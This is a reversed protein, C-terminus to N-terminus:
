AAASIIKPDDYPINFVDACNKWMIRQIESETAGARELIERGLEYDVPWASSSHPFDPGWMIKDVGINYRDIVGLEDEIYVLWVNRDFYESPLLPLNWEERNRKVSEDFRELYYPMWGCQVESGVFKLDPFREFVGSSMMRWLIVQFTGAEMDVGKQKARAKSETVGAASIKSGLDGAPFFFQTHINVPIDMEVAMAWFADDEPTPDSFNGSPYAELQVTRLGMDYVRRLEELCDELGTTPLTANCRFHQPAAEQFEVMWDNYVKFCALSLEKDPMLKIGNWVTGVGNFIVEADIKDETIEKVREIPDWSGPFLDEYRVGRNKMQKFQEILNSRDFRKGSSKFYMSSFGMVSPREQGEMIWAHGKTKKTEIIRPGRDRFKAPLNKVWLEPPENIHGDASIAKYQM